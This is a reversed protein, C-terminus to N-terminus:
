RYNCPPMAKLVKAQNYEAVEDIKEFRDKLGKLIENGFAEVEPSIGLASYINKM